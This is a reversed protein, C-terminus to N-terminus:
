KAGWGSAYPFEGNPFRRDIERSIVRMREDLQHLEDLEVSTYPRHWWRSINRDRMLKYDILASTYERILSSLDQISWWDVKGEPLATIM